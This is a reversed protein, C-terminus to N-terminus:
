HVFRPRHAKRPPRSSGERNLYGLLEKLDASRRELDNFTRVTQPTLPDTATGGTLFTALQAEHGLSAPLM